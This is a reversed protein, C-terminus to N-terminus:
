DSYGLALPFFPLTHTTCTSHPQDIGNVYVESKCTAHRQQRVLRADKHAQICSAWLISRNSVVFTKVVKKNGLKFLDLILVIDVFINHCKTTAEAFGHTDVTALLCQM